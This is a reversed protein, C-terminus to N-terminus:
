VRGGAPMTRISRSLACWLGHRAQTTPDSFRPPSWEATCSTRSKRGGSRSRGSRAWRQAPIRRSSSTRRSPIPGPEELIMVPACSVGGFWATRPPWIRHRQARSDYALAYVPQGPFYPGAAESLFREPTSRLLFLGKTTGVMLMVDGSKVGIHRIGRHVIMPMVGGKGAQQLTASMAASETAEIAAQIESARQYRAAPDKALCRHVIASLGPPIRAPLPVPTEHLIASSIEFGTSGDFPLTGTSAEYLVVGLAWLDSRPDAPNGRLLEPAMYRLTGTLMGSHDLPGLTATAGSAAEGPMRRALGFDLVKVLGQPTVVVNVSKLDRHVINRDHAHALAAAIQSGYRMVM